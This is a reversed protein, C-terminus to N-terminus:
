RFLFHRRKYINIPIADLCSGMSKLSHACIFGSENPIIFTRGPNERLKSVIDKPTRYNVILDNYDKWKMILKKSIGYTNFTVVNVNNMVGVFTAESGGESHGVLKVNDFPQIYRKKVFHFFDNAKKMQSNISRFAMQINAIHDLLSKKDTGAFSVVVNNKNRYVISKFNTKPNHECELIQWGVPVDTSIKGVSMDNTHICLKKLVDSQEHLKQLALKM